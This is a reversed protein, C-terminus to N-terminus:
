HWKVDQEKVRAAMVVPMVSYGGPRTMTGRRQLHMM